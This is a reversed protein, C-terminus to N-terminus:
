VKKTRIECNDQWGVIDMANLIRKAIMQMGMDGPHIAIGKHAFLGIAKMADNEGLDGLEVLPYEHKQAYVRIAEDEQRRWFSTTIIKKARNEPDLYSILSGYAELFRDHDYLKGPCNEVVRMIIMDASFERAAQFEPFVSEAQYCNIEWHAAQCICFSANPNKELVAGAVLHVYDKELVSAAMGWDNHWGIDHNIGHRTISNGVFLIRPGTGESHIYSIVDNNVLQHDAKVTNQDNLNM